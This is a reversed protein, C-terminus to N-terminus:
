PKQGRIEDRIKSWIKGIKELAVLPPPPEFLPTGSRSKKTREKKTKKQGKNPSERNKGPNERDARPHDPSEGSEDREREQGKKLAGVLFLGSLTRSVIQVKGSFLPFSRPKSVGRNLREWNQLVKRTINEPHCLGGIGATKWHWISKGLCSEFVFDVFTKQLGPLTGQLGM